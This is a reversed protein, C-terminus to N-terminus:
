IHSRRLERAESIRQRAVRDAAENPPIEESQARNFIRLLTDYIAGAKKKSQEPTWGQLEGYVNCLGGANIVYDPAYLIGQEHLALGHRSEALQNNAAGAVIDVNLEPLTDDNIVAGLACPAYIDADVRCVDDAGIATAGFDDVVRQVREEDIDTVTLRAGDAALDECLYFGVHGVGQVVVHKGDLSDDGYRFQACAKIGRYVGFATIPSPDGSGEKLGAVSTTEMLVYEM